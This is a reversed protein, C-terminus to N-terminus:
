KGKAAPRELNLRAMVQKLDSWAKAKEGPSRLLYAPHYTPMLATPEGVGPMGSAYYEHWVGRLKGIGEDTRLLTQSAPKGLAVIIDPQIIRLQEDLFPWCQNIESPVPTRNDPPRCKLINCIYVWERSLGMAAIMQTLLQGARGVFALGQQDEDFGPAEGVFVLRTRVDGQGPVVKTRTEFLHCQQCAAVREGLEAMAKQRAKYEKAPLDLRLVKSENSASDSTRDSARDSTRNSVMPNTAESTPSASVNKVTPPMSQGIPVHPVYRAGLLYDTELMRTVAQRVIEKDNSSM